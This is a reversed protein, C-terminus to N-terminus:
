KHAKGLIRKYGDRDLTAFYWTEVCIITAARPKNNMLALEGFSQGSQYKMFDETKWVTYENIDEDAVNKQQLPGKANSEKTLKM